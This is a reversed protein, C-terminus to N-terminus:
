ILNHRTKCLIYISSLRQTIPTPGRCPVAASLRNVHDVSVCPESACGNNLFSLAKINNYSWNPSLMKSIFIWWQQLDRMHIIGCFCCLIDSLSSTNDSQAVIPKLHSCKRSAPLFFFYLIANINWSFWRESRFQRMRQVKLFQRQSLWWAVTSTCIWMQM